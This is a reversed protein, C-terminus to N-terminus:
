KDMIDHALERAENETSNTDIFLRLCLELNILEWLLDAHAENGDRYNRVISKITESKFIGRELSKKETLMAIYPNLGDKKKMWQSLPVGFGSKKRYVIQKPLSKIALRKLISKTHLNLANLKWHYPLTTAYEVLEHDLFPVRAEIGAAMSMRDMRHLASLLYTHADLYLGQDVLSKNNQTASHIVSTRFPFLYHNNKDEFLNSMSYPLVFSSNFLIGQHSTMPLFHKLKSAYHGNFLSLLFPMTQRVLKPFLQHFMLIWYRPYGGFTEDAGEGTLLVTVKEKALKCIILLLVSNAHNLPEDNYWVALPLTRAFEEHNVVLLHHDTNFKKSVMSAYSSEDYGPEEFGISYTNIPESKMEAAYATVLSSDVGGSNLTGLPVDSMLRRRVANELLYDLKDIAQSKSLGHAESFVSPTGWYKRFTSYGKERILFHGPLLTQIRKFLTDQGSVFRFILYEPILDENIERSIGQCQLVAKIESAFVFRHRTSWYYFPKIGLRDRAAFLRETKTDWLAFSFMGQLKHLFETGYDEYLHVIVETDCNTAFHHGSNILDNRLLQHNYIAGNFVLWITKDENSIPQHGGELDIINLRLHGLGTSGEIYFGADDPGRHAMSDRMKILDAKDVLCTKDSNIIGCIGCM